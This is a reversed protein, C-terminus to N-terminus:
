ETTLCDTPLVVPGQSLPYPYRTLVHQLTRPLAVKGPKEPYIHFIDSKKRSVAIGLLTEVDLKAEGNKIAHVEYHKAAPFTLFVKKTLDQPQVAVLYKEM